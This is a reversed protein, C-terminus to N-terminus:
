RALASTASQHVHHSQVYGVISRRDHGVLLWGGGSVDGLVYVSSGAVLTAVTKSPIRPSIHVPADILVSSNRAILKLSKPPDFPYGKLGDPQSVVPAQRRKEHPGAKFWNERASAEARREDEAKQKASAATQLTWGVVYIAAIVAAIGVWSKTDESTWKENSSQARVPAVQAWCVTFFFLIAVVRRARTARALNFM